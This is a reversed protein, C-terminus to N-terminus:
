RSVPKVTTTGGSIPLVPVNANGEEIGMDDDPLLVVVIVECGSRVLSIIIWEEEM